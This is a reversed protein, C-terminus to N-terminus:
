ADFLGLVEDLQVYKTRQGGLLEVRTNMSAIKQKLLEVDSFKVWDGWKDEESLIHPGFDSKPIYHDYRKM